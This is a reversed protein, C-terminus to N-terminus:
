EEGNLCEGTENTEEGVLSREFKLFIRMWDQREKNENLYDDLM